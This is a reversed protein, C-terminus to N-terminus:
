SNRNQAKRLITAIDIPELTDFDINNSIAKEVLDNLQVLNEASINPYNNIM